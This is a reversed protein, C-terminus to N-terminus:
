NPRNTGNLLGSLCKSGSNSRLFLKQQHEWSASFWSKSKQTTLICQFDIKPKSIKFFDSKEIRNKQSALFDLFADLSQIHARLLTKRPDKRSKETKLAWKPCFCSFDSKSGLNKVLFRNKIKDEGITKTSVFVHQTCIHAQLSMKRRKQTHNKSWKRGKRTKWSFVGSSSLFQM